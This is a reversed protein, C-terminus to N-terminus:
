YCAYRSPRPPPATLRDFSEATPWPLVETDARENTPELSEQPDADGSQKKDILFGDEYHYSSDFTEASYRFYQVLRVDKM